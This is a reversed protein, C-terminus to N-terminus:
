GLVPERGIPHFLATYNGTEVFGHSLLLYTPTYGGSSSPTICAKAMDGNTPLKNCSHTTNVNYIISCNGTFHGVSTGKPPNSKYCEHTGLIAIEFSSVDPQM